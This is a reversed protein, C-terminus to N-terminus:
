MNESKWPERSRERSVLNESFFRTMGSEGDVAVFAGLIIGKEMLREALELSQSVAKVRTRQDLGKVNVTVMTGPIDTQPDITEASKRIVGPSEVFSANAVATAAADALSATKGIITAASAIGCTFSRGGLGSTAIGFAAGAKGFPIRLSVAHLFEQRDVSERLGVRVWNPAMLRVAIDGGNNVIVKTMGRSFLFDAVGDAITGAVAAMPTLFTDGVLRVSELMKGGLPETPQRAIEPWPKRLRQDLRAVEELCDFATEAARLNMERQPIKGVFSSIVLRMPGWEAMVAGGELRHVTRDGLM